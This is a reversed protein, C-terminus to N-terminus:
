PTFTKMNAIHSLHIYSAKCKLLMDATKIAIFYLRFKICRSYGCHMAVFMVRLLEGATHWTTGATLQAKELLVTNTVGMKALHYLTSCGM